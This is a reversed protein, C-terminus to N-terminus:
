ERPTSADVPATRTAPTGSPTPLAGGPAHGDDGDTTGDAAVEDGAGDNRLGKMEGKLVRASQGVSRAMDPLKKAGFLLVFVAIVILWHTPSMAGM